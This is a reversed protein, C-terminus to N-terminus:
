KNEDVSPLRSSASRDEKMKLIQYHSNSADWKSYGRFIAYFCVILVICTMILVLDTHTILSRHRPAELMFFLAIPAGFLIGIQLNHFLLYTWKKQRDKEKEWFAIFEKEEKTLPPWTTKEADSMP